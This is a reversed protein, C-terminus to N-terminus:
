SNIDIAYQLADEMVGYCYFANIVSQEGDIEIMKQLFSDAIKQNYNAIVENYFDGVTM